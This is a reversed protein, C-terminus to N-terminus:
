GTETVLALTAAVVAETACEPTYHAAIRSAEFGMRALTDSTRALVTLHQALSPVDGTSYREGTRGPIVMDPGAGVEDSVVCPLGYAMAETVVLGWTERGDSPLVLADAATYARGIESQNQFGAFTIPLDRARAYAEMEPRLPGDGVVLGAIRGNVKVAAEIARVFDMPRKRELCKGAFVYVTQTDDFGWGHRFSNRQERLSERQSLLPEVDLVHPVIFVRDPDAGFHLFYERSWTGVALCADFTPIALRYPLWKLGRKWASRQTHLHSDSRVMVPIGALRSALIAQCFVRHNWGLVLTVDYTDPRLIASLEPSDLGRFTELGPQTSVNHLFRYPYGSLLPTDWEFDVNFGARAQDRASANHAYLVDIELNPHAAMARFWPAQYQIPHSAVIAVRFKRLDSRWSVTVRLACAGTEYHM